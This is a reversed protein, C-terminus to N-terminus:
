RGERQVATGRGCKVDNKSGLLTDTSHPCVGVCLCSRLDERNM